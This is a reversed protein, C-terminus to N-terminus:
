NVRVYHTFSEWVKNGTLDSVWKSGQNMQKLKQIMPIDDQSQLLSEDSTNNKTDEVEPQRATGKKEQVSGPRDETKKGRPTRVEASHCLSQRRNYRSRFKEEMQWINLTWTITFSVYISFM